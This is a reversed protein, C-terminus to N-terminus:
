RAPENGKPAAGSALPQRMPKPLTKGKKKLEEEKKTRKSLEKSESKARLMLEDLFGRQQLDKPCLKRYRRFYKEAEADEGIISYVLGQSFLCCSSLVSHSGSEACLGVM